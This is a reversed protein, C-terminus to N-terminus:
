LNYRYSTGLDGSAMNKIWEVYQVWIPQDLGLEKMILRKDSESVYGGTAFLIYVINVPALRLLFFIVVSMGFLTILAIGLRKAVYTRTITEKHGRCEHISPSLERVPATPASTRADGYGKM